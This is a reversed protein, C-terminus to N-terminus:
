LFQEYEPRVESQIFDTLLEQEQADFQLEPPYNVMNINERILVALVKKLILDKQRFIQFRPDKVWVVKGNPLKEIEDRSIRQIIRVHQKGKDDRKTVETWYYYVQGKAKRVIKVYPMTRTRYFISVCSRFFTEMLPFSNDQELRCQRIFTCM